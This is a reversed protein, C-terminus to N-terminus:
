FSIYCMWMILTQCKKACGFVDLSEAIGWFNRMFNRFSINKLFQSLIKIESLNGRQRQM